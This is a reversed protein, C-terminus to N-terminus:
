HSIGSRTSRAGESAKNSGTRDLHTPYTDEYQRETVITLNKRIRKPKFNSYHNDNFCSLYKKMHEEDLENFALAKVSTNQKSKFYSTTEQKSEEILARLSKDKQNLNHKLKGVALGADNPKLSNRYSNIMAAEDEQKIIQEGM